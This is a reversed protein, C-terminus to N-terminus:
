GHYQRDSLTRLYRAQDPNASRDALANIQALDIYGKLFAIEEPCAVQLGQRVELTRVFQSAELLSEPTGADLWAYGRGLQRVSLRGSELYAKNLETIELEGRASPKLRSAIAPAEGDYFYLGTVAWDSLPKCPKEEISVPRGTGDLEVVGFDKPNSVRYAFIVAGDTTAAEALYATLGHGFFLNDGLILSCRQGALFDRGI